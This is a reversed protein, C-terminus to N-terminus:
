TLAYGAVTIPGAAGEDLEEESRGDTCLRDVVEELRGLDANVLRAQEAIADIGEMELDLELLKRMFGKSADITGALEATVHDIAGAYVGMYDIALGTVSHYSQTLTDMLRKTEALVETTRQEVTSLEALAERAPLEM